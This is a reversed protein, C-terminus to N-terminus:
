KIDFDGKMFKTLVPISGIILTSLLELGFKKFDKNMRNSGKM